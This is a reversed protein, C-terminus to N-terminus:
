SDPAENEVVTATVAQAQVQALTRKTEGRSSACSLEVGQQYGGM